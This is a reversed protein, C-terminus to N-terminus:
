KVNLAVPHGPEDNFSGTEVQIYERSDEINSPSHCNSDTICVLFRVHFFGQIVENLIRIQIQCPKSEVKHEDAHWRNADEDQLIFEKLNLTCSSVVRWYDVNEPRDVANLDEEVQANVLNLLLSRLLLSLM